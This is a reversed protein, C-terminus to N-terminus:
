RSAGPLAASVSITPFDTDPLSSIPIQFYAVVGAVVFGSVLLITAKPRSIFPLSLNVM